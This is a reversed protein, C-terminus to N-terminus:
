IMRQLKEPNMRMDWFAAIWIVNGDVYYIMKYNDYIVTARFLFKRDSLLPEIFGIYPFHSIKDIKDDVLKSFKAASREGAYYLFIDIINELHAIAKDTFKVQM